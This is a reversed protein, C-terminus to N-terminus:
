LHESISYTPTFVHCSLRFSYVKLFLVFCFREVEKRIRTSLKTKYVLLPLPLKSDYDSRTLCFIISPVIETEGPGEHIVTVRGRYDKLVLNPIEDRGTGSELNPLPDSSLFHYPFGGETVRGM